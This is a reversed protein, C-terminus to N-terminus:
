SSIYNSVGQVCLKWEFAANHSEWVEKVSAFHVNMSWWTRSCRASLHKMQSWMWIHRSPGRNGRNWGLERIARSDRIVPSSRQGPLVFLTGECTAPNTWQGRQCTAILPGDAVFGPHCQYTMSEGSQYHTKVDRLESAHFVQPPMGCIKEPFIYFM